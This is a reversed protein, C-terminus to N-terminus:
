SGTRRMGLGLLVSFGHRRSRLVEFDDQRDRLCSPRGSLGWVLCQDHAQANDGSPCKPSVVGVRCGPCRDWILTQILFGVETGMTVQSPEGYPLLGVSNNGEQGQTLIRTQARSKNARCGQVGV